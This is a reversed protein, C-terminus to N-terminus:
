EYLDYSVIKEMERRTSHGTEAPYGVAILSVIRQEHPIGLIQKVDAEYESNFVGVWCTGLGWSHAALLVNQTAASCDEVYHRPSRQPDAVVAICAPAASIFKGYTTAEAISERKAKDRIVVFKQPQSNNASPAWRGAEILESVFETPIEKDLYRRVSRRSRIAEMVEM